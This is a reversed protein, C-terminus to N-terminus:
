SVEDMPVVPRPLGDRYFHKYGPPTPEHATTCGAYEGRADHYLRRHDEVSGWVAGAQHYHFQIARRTLDSNNPATFHQLLSGFILADGPQMEIQLARAPDILREDMRCRNFDNEHVHPVPGWLHSGPIVEMCGNDRLAPDLAIWVGVILSPDTLRFYSADQHWPKDAGIRPPKVLAMEQFLVRGEGLLQDLIAHLRRHMAAAKLAPADEVYDTYKRVYRERQDPPIDEARYGKEFMLGTDRRPIRDAALDSLAKRCADVMCPGLLGRAVVYGDRRYQAIDGASLLGSQPKSVVDDM